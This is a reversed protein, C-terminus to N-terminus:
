KEGVRKLNLALLCELVQEDKLLYNMRGCIPNDASDPPACVPVPYHITKALCVESEPDCRATQPCITPADDDSAYLYSGGAEIIWYLHNSALWMLSLLSALM